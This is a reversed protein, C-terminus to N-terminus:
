SNWRSMRACALVSDCSLRTLCAVRGRRRLKPRRGGFAGGPGGGLADGPGGGRTGRCSVPPRGVAAAAGGGGGGGGGPDGAAGLPPGSGSADVRSTCFM